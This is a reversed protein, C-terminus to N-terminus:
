ATLPNSEWIQPQENSLKLITNSLVEKAERRIEDDETPFSDVFPGDPIDRLDDIIAEHSFLSDIMEIAQQAYATPIRGTIYKQLLVLEQFLVRSDKVFAQQIDEKSFEDLVDSESFDIFGVSGDAFIANDLTLDNHVVGHSNMTYISDLTSEIADYYLLAEAMSFHSVRAFFNGGSFPSLSSLNKGPILRSRFTTEDFGLPQAMLRENSLSLRDFVNQAQQFEEEPTTRTRERRSPHKFTKRCHIGYEQTDPMSKITKDGPIVVDVSVDKSDWISFLVLDESGHYLHRGIKELKNISSPSSIPEDTSDEIIGFITERIKDSNM